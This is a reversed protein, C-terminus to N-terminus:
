GRRTTARLRELLEDQNAVFWVHNNRNAEYVFDRLADSSAVHDSIDGVIALRLRYNVFKQMVAGAIGSRLTFFGDQCREAPVSVLEAGHYIAEGILDLATEESLAPGDPACVLVPVDLMDVLTASM